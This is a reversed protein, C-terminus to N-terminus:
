WGSGVFILSFLFNNVRNLFLSSVSCLSFLPLRPHLKYSVANSAGWSRKLFPLGVPYFYFHPVSIFSFFFVCVVRRPESVWLTAPFKERLPSDAVDQCKCIFNLEQLLFSFWQCLCLFFSFTGFIMLLKYLCFCIQCKEAGNSHNLVRFEFLLWTVLECHVTLSLLSYM